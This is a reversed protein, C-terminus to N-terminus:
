SPQNVSYFDFRSKRKKNLLYKKRSGTQQVSYPLERYSSVLFDNWPNIIRKKFGRLRNSFHVINNEVFEQIAAIESKRDALHRMSRLPNKPLTRITRSM